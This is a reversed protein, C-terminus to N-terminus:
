LGSCEAARYRYTAPRQGPNVWELVSGAWVEAYVTDPPLPDEDDETATETEESDRDEGGSEHRAGEQWGAGTSPSVVKM